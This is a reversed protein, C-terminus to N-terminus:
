YYIVEKDGWWTCEIVLEASQVVEIVGQSFGVRVQHVRRETTRGISLDQEQVQTSVEGGPEDSVDELRSRIGRELFDPLMPFMGMTNRPFQNFLLSPLHCDSLRPLINQAQQTRRM